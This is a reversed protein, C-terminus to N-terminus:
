QEAEKPLGGPTYFLNLALINSDDSGLTGRWNELQYGLGLRLGPVLEYAVEARADTLFNGGIAPQNDKAWAYVLPYLGLSAELHWPGQHPKWALTGVLGLAHRTQEYDISSGTYRVDSNNPVVNKYQYGLQLAGELTNSFSYFPGVRAGAQWTSPTFAPNQDTGLGSVDVPFQNHAGEAELLWPHWRFRLGLGFDNNAFGSIGAGAQTIGSQRVRYGFRIGSNLPASSVATEASPLLAPLPMTPMFAGVPNLTVRLARGNGIPVTAGDYGVNSVTLNTGGSADLLLRFQGKQNTFASTVSGEQQVLAGAIPRGTQADLVVGTAVTPAPAAAVLAPPIAAIILM